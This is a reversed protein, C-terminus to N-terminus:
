GHLSFNNLRSADIAEQPSSPDAVPDIERGPGMERSTDRHFRSPYPANTTSRRSDVKKYQTRKGHIAKNANRRPVPFLRQKLLLRVRRSTM